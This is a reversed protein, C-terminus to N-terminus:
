KQRRYSLSASQWLCRRRRCASIRWRRKRYATAFPWEPCEANLSAGIGTGGRTKGHNASRLMHDAPKDRHYTSSFITLYNRSRLLLNRNYAWGGSTCISSGPQVGVRRFHLDLRRTTCDVGRRALRGCVGRTPLTTFQIIGCDSSALRRASYSAAM